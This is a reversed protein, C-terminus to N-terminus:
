ANPPSVWEAKIMDDTHYATLAHEYEELWDGYIVLLGGPTLRSLAAALHKGDIPCTIYLSACLPIGEGLAPPAVFLADPNAHTSTRTTLRYAKLRALEGDLGTRKFRNLTRAREREIEAMLKALRKQIVSLFIPPNPAVVVVSGVALRRPLHRSLDYSLLSHKPVERVDIYLTGDGIISKM